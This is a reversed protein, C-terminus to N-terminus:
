DVVSLILGTDESTCEAIARLAIIENKSDLYNDVTVRTVLRRGDLRTIESLDQLYAMSCHVCIEKLDPGGDDAPGESICNGCVCALFRVSGLKHLLLNFYACRPDVLPSNAPNNDVCDCSTTADAPLLRPPLQTDDM